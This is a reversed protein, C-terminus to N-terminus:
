IPKNLEDRRKWREWALRGVAYLIGALAVLLVIDFFLTAYTRVFDLNGAYYGILVTIGCWLLAGALNVAAYRGYEMGDIGALFPPLNIAPIFRSIVISAPGFRRLLERARAINGARLIHPCFRRCATLSFVRATWYNLDYGIYAGAIAVGFVGALSVEGTVALTGAFFLTPSDPFPAIVFVAGLFVVLFVIAYFLVGSHVAPGLISPLDGSATNFLADLLDTWRGQLLQKGGIHVRGRIDHM